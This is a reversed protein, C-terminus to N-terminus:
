YIDLSTKHFGLYRIGYLFLSRDHNTFIAAGLHPDALGVKISPFKSKAALFGPFIGSDTPKRTLHSYTHLGIYHLSIPIDIDFQCQLAVMLRRQIAFRM